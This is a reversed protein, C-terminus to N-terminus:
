EDNIIGPTRFTRMHFMVPIRLSGGSGTRFFIMYEPSIGAFDAM